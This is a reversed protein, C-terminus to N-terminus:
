CIIYCKINAYSHYSVEDFEDREGVIPADDPPARWSKNNSVSVNMKFFKVFVKKEFIFQVAVLYQWIHNSM